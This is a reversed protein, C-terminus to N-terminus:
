SKKSTDKPAEKPTDKKVVKAGNAAKDGKANKMGDCAYAAASVSFMGAVVLTLVKKM